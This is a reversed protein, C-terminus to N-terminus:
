VAAAGAADLTADDLEGAIHQQAARAGHRTAVREKGHFQHTDCRAAPKNRARLNGRLTVSYGTDRLHKPIHAKYQDCRCCGLHTGDNM